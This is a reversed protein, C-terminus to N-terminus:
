KAIEIVAQCAAPAMSFAGDGIPLSSRSLESGDRKYSILEAEHIRAKVSGDKISRRLEIQIKEPKGSQLVLRSIDLGIEIPGPKGGLYNTAGLFPQASFIMPKFAAKETEAGAPRAGLELLVQDRRDSEIKLRLALKPTSQCVRVIAIEGLNIGGKLYDQALLRYPIYCRGENAWEYGWSNCMILCGKEWDKMDIVGDGNIDVDNSVRGDGNFDYGVEDDYGAFTMAHHYDNGFALIMQRGGEPLGEPIIAFKLNKMPAHFYALGGHLRNGGEYNWLWRKLRRLGEPTDGKFYEWDHVRNHAAELYRSYGDMWASSFALPQEGWTRSDPVGMEQAVKWGDHVWAGVNKGGNLFNYTYYQPFLNRPDSSDRDLLRNTEYTFIYCIASMQSCNGIQGQNSIPPFYRSRSNDVRSPPEEEQAVLPVASLILILLLRTM